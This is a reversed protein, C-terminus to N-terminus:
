EHVVRKTFDNAKVKFCLSWWLLECGSETSAELVQGM